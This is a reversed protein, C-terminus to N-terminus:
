DREQEICEIGLPIEIHLIDDSSCEIIEFDSDVDEINEFGMDGNIISICCFTLYILLIILFIIISYTIYVLEM